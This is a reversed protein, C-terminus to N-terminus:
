ELYGLSRLRNLVTAEEEADYVVGSAVPALEEGAPPTDVPRSKALRPPRRRLDEPEFAEVPLRGDMDDPTPVGLGHLLLPAMDVISLEDLSAGRRLGPGRALFVGEPCHTGAPEPRSGFPTDSRLISVIGNGELM